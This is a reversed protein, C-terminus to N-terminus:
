RIAYKEAFLHLAFRKRDPASHIPRQAFTLMNIDPIAVRAVNCTSFSQSYLINMEYKTPRNSLFNITLFKIVINVYVGSDFGIYTLM